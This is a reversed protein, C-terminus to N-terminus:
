DDPPWAVPRNTETGRNESMATLLRKEGVDNISM